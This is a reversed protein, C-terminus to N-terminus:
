SYRPTAVTSKSLWDPALFACVHLVDERVHKSLAADVLLWRVSAEDIVASYHWCTLPVQWWCALLVSDVEALQWGADCRALWPGCLYAAASGTCWNAVYNATSSLMVLQAYQACTWCIRSSV